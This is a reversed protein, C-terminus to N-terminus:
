MVGAARATPGHIEFLPSWPGSGWPNSHNTVALIGGGGQVWTQLYALDGQTFSFCVDNSIPGSPGGRPYAQQRTLSVLVDVGALQLALPKPFDSISFTYGLNKLSSFWTTLRNGSQQQVQVQVSMADFLINV